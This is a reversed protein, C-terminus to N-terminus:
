YRPGRGYIHQVAVNYGQRFGYKYDRRDPRAIFGPHRYEDRNEVNPPRHNEFDRRAGQIGDNYGRQQAARFEPPVSEWPQPPPGQPAGYPQQGYPQQGYGQPPPAGYGGQQAFLTGTTAILGFALTAAALRTPRM